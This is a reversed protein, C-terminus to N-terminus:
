QFVNSMPFVFQWIPWAVVWEQRPCYIGFQSTAYEDDYGLLTYGILQLLAKRAAQPDLKVITKLEFIVGGIIFGADAGGITPAATQLPEPASAQLPEM